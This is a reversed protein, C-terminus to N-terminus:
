KVDFPTDVIEIDDLNPLILGTMDEGNLRRRNVETDFAIKIRREKMTRSINKNSAIMILQQEYPLDFYRGKRGRGNAQPTRFLSYLLQELRGFEEESVTIPKTQIDEKGNVLDAIIDILDTYSCNKMLYDKVENEALKALAQIHNFTAM